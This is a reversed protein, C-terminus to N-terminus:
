GPAGCFRGRDQFLVRLHVGDPAARLRV